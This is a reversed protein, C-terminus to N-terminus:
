ARCALASEMIQLNQRMLSLYDAGAASQEPLLGELPNLVAVKAGVARAVADVSRSSLLTEAFVYTPKLERALEIIQTLEKPSPEAEPNLGTIGIQRLRYRAAMYGFATHGTFIERRACTDLGARFSRDLQALESILEMLNHRFSGVQAPAASELHQEVATAVKSFLTPDLWFHPDVSGDAFHHLPVVSLVDFARSKDPLTKVTDDVSPQLGKLYFVLRANRIAVVDSPRLELDHPEAGPPTLDTVHVASGGIREALFQLPYFAAAIALKGTDQPSSVSCAAGVVLVVSVFVAAL